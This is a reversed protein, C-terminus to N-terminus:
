KEIKQNKHNKRNKLKESNQIKQKKYNEIKQNKMKRSVTPLPAGAVQKKKIKEKKAPLM